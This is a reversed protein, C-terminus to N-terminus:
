FGRRKFLNELEAAPVVIRTPRGHPCTHTHEVTEAERLLSEIQDENLRDGARVARHCAMTFLMRDAFDDIRGDAREENLYTLVRRLLGQVNGGPLCAPGASVLVEQPGFAAVQLGVQMLLEEAETLCALDQPSLEVRVPTLLQQRRIAKDQWERRLHRYLVREHLAHQDLIVMGQESALVLYTQLVQVYRGPILRLPAPAAARRTPQAAESGPGFPSAAPTLAEFLDQQSSSASDALVGERVQQTEHAPAPAAAASGSISPRPAPLRFEVRPALDAQRLARDVASLVFRYVDSSNRMRVEVKTPHVNCDIEAPDMELFLFYIPTLSEALFDKYARRVAGQVSRDRVVRGNLFLLQLRSRARAQDPPALFGRLQLRSGDARVPLLSQALEKGYGAAIRERLSEGATLQFSRRTGTKMSFGVDTRALALRLVAEVIHGLETADTKLFKRRAPTNYFLERAEVSTGQPRGQPRPGDLEGASGRVVYGSEANEVRSSLQVHSISAISALAEGRFGYSQVQLLDDADRIKSTAHSQLALLMQEADIGCGDDHVALRRRGGGEAEVDIQTALADLSNEVLEKVVSAPREVVEGAAIQNILNQSLQRIVRPEAV